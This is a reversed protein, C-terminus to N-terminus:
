GRRLTMVNEAAVAPSSSGPLAPPDIAVPALSGGGDGPVPETARAAPGSPAKRGGARESGSPQDGGAVPGAFMGLTAALIGSPGM